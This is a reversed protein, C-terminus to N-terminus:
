DPPCASSSLSTAPGSGSPGPGDLVRRSATRCEPVDAGRRASPAAHDPIDRPPDRRAAEVREHEPTRRLAALRRDGPPGRPVRLHAAGIPAHKLSAQQRDGRVNGISARGYCLCVNSLEWVDDCEHRNMRGRGPLAGDNRKGMAVVERVDVISGDLSDHTHRLTDPASFSCVRKNDPTSACVDSRQSSEHM